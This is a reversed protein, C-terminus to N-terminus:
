GQSLIMCFSQVTLRAQRKAAGKGNGDLKRWALCRM